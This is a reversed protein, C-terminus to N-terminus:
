TKPRNKRQFFKELGTKKSDTSFMSRFMLREMKIGQLLGVNQSLRIAEKIMRTSLVSKGAIKAALELAKELLEHDEVVRSVIKLELAREASLHDGTMMIEAAIQPGVIRTILQTGVIGPLIGLNVEPFGFVASRSAIIIDCMLALEFGGGLAYGSIAAIVPIKVNFVSEWRHDIFNGLYAEEHSRSAIESVDVGAAFAKPGGTIVLVSAREEVRSLEVHIREMLDDSLANLRADDDLTLLAVSDRISIKISM